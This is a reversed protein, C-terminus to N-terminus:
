IKWKKLAIKLEKHTKAYEKLSINDITCEIAQIAAKAGALTGLPHGHIGGGMQIVFDKGFFKILRPVHCPNLGGSAVPMVKKIGFLNEKLAQTNNMVEKRGEFMKGVITGVHLQDVGIIRAIKAIVKMAIGHKPNRTFVAHGARHAHLILNFEKNRLTQLSAWGVTIIDVMAYENGYDEVFKARKLMEKTEASINIMYVKKKGSEKEAKKKAKFTKELRKKFKNFSQSSLNEDDKVIDCGGIWAEYAVKAHDITKLGLKPKIITGLLPRNKIRLIKRIGKIGYRPGKFSKVIKEPFWVDLLKLNKVERMGFINGAISSLINPMNGLEFLELPYAIKIKNKKIEFVKAALKKVYPKETKVEIWTGISSEAAVAGGARKLTSNSAPEIFFECILDNKSPKYNLNVFDEYKM